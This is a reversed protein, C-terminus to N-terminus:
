FAEEPSNRKKLSLVYIDGSENELEMYIKNNHCFMNRILLQLNRKQFFIRSVNNIKVKKRKYLWDFTKRKGNEYFAGKGDSEFCILPVEECTHQSLKEGSKTRKKYIITQFYWSGYLSEVNMEVSHYGDNSSIINEALSDGNSCIKNRLCDYEEFSMNVHSLISDSFAVGEMNNEHMLYNIVALSYTVFHADEMCVRNKYSLWEELYEKMKNSPTRFFYLSDGNVAFLKLPFHPGMGKYSYIGDQFEFDDYVCMNYVNKGAGADVRGYKCNIIDSISDPVNVLQFPYRQALTQQVSQMVFLLVLIYRMM